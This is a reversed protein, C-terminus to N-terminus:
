FKYEKVIGLIDSEKYLEYLNKRGKDNINIKTGNYDPLYVIQGPKLLTPIFVGNENYVGKGVSIVKGLKANEQLYKKTLYLGSKTLEPPMIKQILCRNMLPTLSKIIPEM